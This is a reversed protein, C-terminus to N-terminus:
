DSKVYHVLVQVVHRFHADTTLIALGHQMASAAIWLDNTPIPKGIHWLGNLIIAYRQSTEEDVSIVHVRPSTLFQKLTKENKEQRRGHLFGARLEGLIVPNVYIADAEQLAYKIDPHGRMFASYASTDLLLRTM